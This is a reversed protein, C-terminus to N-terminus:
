YVESRVYNIIQNIVRELEFAQWEERNWAGYNYIAAGMVFPDHRLQRDVWKLLELYTNEHSGKWVDDRQWSRDMRLWGDTDQGIYDLTAPELGVHDCGTETIAIRVSTLGLQALYRRWIYRYRFLLDGEGYWTPWHQFLEPTTALLANTNSGYWLWPLWFYEHAAFVHRGEHLARFMPVFYGYMDWNPCGVSFVGAAIKIGAENALRAREVEFANVWQCAEVTAVGPENLAQMSVRNRYDPQVGEWLSRTWGHAEHAEHSIDAGQQITKELYTNRIVIHLGDNAALLDNILSLDNNTDITNVLMLRMGAGRVLDALGPPQKDTHIGLKSHSLM